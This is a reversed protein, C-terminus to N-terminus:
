CVCFSQNGVISLIAEIVHGEGGSLDWGGVWWELPGVGKGLPGMGRVWHDWGGM